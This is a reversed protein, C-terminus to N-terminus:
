GDRSIIELNHITHTTPDPPIRLKFMPASRDPSSVRTQRLLSNEGCPMTFLRKKRKSLCFLTSDSIKCFMYDRKGYSPFHLYISILKATPSTLKKPPFHFNTLLRAPTDLLYRSCACSSSVEANARRYM